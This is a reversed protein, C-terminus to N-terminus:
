RRGSRPMPESANKRAVAVSTAVITRVPSANRSTRSKAWVRRSASLSSSVESGLRRSKEIRSSSAISVAPAVPAGKATRITSRSSKLSSFSVSPCGVPSETSRSTPSRSVAARRGSSVSARSPPSSNPMTSVAGVASSPATAAASRSRAPSSAAKSTRPSRSRTAALTPM